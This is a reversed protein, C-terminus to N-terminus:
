GYTARPGSLDDAINCGGNQGPLVRLLHVNRYRSFASHWVVWGWYSQHRSPPLRVPQPMSSGDTRLIKAGKKELFDGPRVSPKAEAFPMARPQRLVMLTSLQGPTCCIGHTNERTLAPHAMQSPARTHTPNENDIVLRLVATDQFKGQRRQAM